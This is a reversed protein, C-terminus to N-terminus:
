YSVEYNYYSQINDYQFRNYLDTLSLVRHPKIKAIMKLLLSSLSMFRILYDSYCYYFYIIVSGGRVTVLHLSVAPVDLAISLSKRLSKIDALTFKYYCEDVEVFFVNQEEIQFFVNVFSKLNRKCCYDKFNICYDSWIAMVDSYTSLFQTALYHLAGFNFWSVRLSHLLNQLDHINSLMPLPHRLWAAFDVSINSVKREEIMEEALHKWTTVSVSTFHDTIKGTDVCLKSQRDFINGFKVVEKDSTNIDSSDVVLLKPGWDCKNMKQCQRGTMWGQITCQGCGCSQPLFAPPVHNKSYVEAVLM